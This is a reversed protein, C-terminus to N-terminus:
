KFGLGVLLNILTHVLIVSYIDRRWHYMSSMFIGLPFMPWTKPIQFVHYSVFLVGAAIPTWRGFFPETKRYLFGRFYVEECFHNFFIVFAMTTVTLSRPLTQISEAMTNQWFWPPMRFLPVSDLFAWAPKVLPLWLYNIFAIFPLTLAASLLLSKGDFRTLGLWDAMQRLNMGDMRRLYFYAIMTMPIWLVAIAIYMQVAWLNAGLAAAIGQAFFTNFGLYFLSPVYYLAFIWATTKGRDGIVSAKTM